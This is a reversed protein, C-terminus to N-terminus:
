AAWFCCVASLCKRKLRRLRRADAGRRDKLSDRRRSGTGPRGGWGLTIAPGGRVCTGERCLYTRLLICSLMDM